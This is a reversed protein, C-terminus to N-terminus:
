TPWAELARVVATQRPHDEIDDLPIATFAFWLRYHALMLVVLPDDYVSSPIGVTTM